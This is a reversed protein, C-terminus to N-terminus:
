IQDIKDCLHQGGERVAKSAMEVAQWVTGANETAKLGEYGGVCAGGLASVGLCVAATTGVATAVSGATAGGGGAAAAATAEGGAAATAVATAEGGAALATAGGGGATAVAVATAEGGAAVAVATAEEGAAATAIALAMAGGGAPAAGGGSSTAREAASSALGTAAARVRENTGLAIIFFGAKKLGKLVGKMLIKVGFFAGLLAGTGTGALTILLRQFVNNTARENIEEESMNGASQRIRGRERQIEEEVAQLVQNTYCGNNNDRITKDITQLLKEVQFKNSRYENMPRNNWYKNDIVHCRGGCKRVLEKLNQDKRVFDEITQGERLQDGHTFVVTAYRFAEESFYENIKTIVAQEHETYREVKLLILFAHIGRASMTICRIMEHKLAEESVRTDFFGPTDILTIHRGNVPRTKARCESTEPISTDGTQFLPEEFITNGLSSKGSGTKGFIAVRRPGDM